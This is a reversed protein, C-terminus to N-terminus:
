VRWGLIFAVQQNGCKALYVYAGRIHPVAIFLADSHIVNGLLHKPHWWSSGQKDWRVGAM